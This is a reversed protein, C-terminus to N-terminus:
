RVHTIVGDRTLVRTEVSELADICAARDPESAARPSSCTFIVGVGPLAATRAVM